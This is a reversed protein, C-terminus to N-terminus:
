GISYAPHPEGTKVMYLVRESRSKVQTAWRSKALHDAALIWDGKQVAAITLKFDRLKRGGLNFSLNLLALQRAEAWTEVANGFIDVVDAWAKEIDECLMTEIVCDSLTLRSLDKGIFHGVGITWYGLSDKYPSSRVGEDLRLMEAAQKTCRLSTM